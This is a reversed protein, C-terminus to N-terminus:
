ESFPVVAVELREAPVRAAGVSAADVSIATM